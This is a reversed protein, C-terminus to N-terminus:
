DGMNNLEDQEIAANRESEVETELDTIKEQLDFIHDGAILLKDRLDDVELKLRANEARLMVLEEEISM